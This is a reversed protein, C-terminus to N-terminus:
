QETFRNEKKKITITVNEGLTLDLKRVIDKPITVVLSSGIYRLQAVYEMKQENDNDGTTVMKIRRPFIFHPINHKHM